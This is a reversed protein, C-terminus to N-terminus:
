DELVIMKVRPNIAHFIQFWERELGHCIVLNVHFGKVKPIATVSNGNTFRICESNKSIYMLRKGIMDDILAIMREAIRKSGVLVCIRYDQRQLMMSAAIGAIATGKGSNRGMKITTLQYPSYLAQYAQLQHQTWVSPYKIHEYCQVLKFLYKLVLPACDKLIPLKRSILVWTVSASVDRVWFYSGNMLTEKILYMALPEVM